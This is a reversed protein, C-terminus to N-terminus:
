ENTQEQNDMVSDVLEIITEIRVEVAACENELYRIHQVIDGPVVNMPFAAKIRQELCSSVVSIETSHGGINEPTDGQDRLWKSKQKIPERYM